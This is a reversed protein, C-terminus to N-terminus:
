GQTIKVWSQVVRGLFIFKHQRRSKLLCCDWQHYNVVAFDYMWGDAQPLLAPEYGSCRNTDLRLLLKRKVKVNHLCVCVSSVVTCSSIQYKTNNWTAWNQSCFTFCVEQIVLQVAQGQPPSDGAPRFLNCLAQQVHLGLSSPHGSWRLHSHYLCQGVVLQLINCLYKHDRCALIRSYPYGQDPHLHYLLFRWQMRVELLHWGPYQHLLFTHYPHLLTLYQHALLVLFLFQHWLGHYFLNFQNSRTYWLPLVMPIWQRPNVMLDLSKTYSHASLNWVDVQNLNM